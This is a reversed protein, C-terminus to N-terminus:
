GFLPLLDLLLLSQFFLIGTDSRCCGDIWQWYTGVLWWLVMMLHNGMLFTVSLLLFPINYLIHRTQFLLYENSSNYLFKDVMCCVCDCWVPFDGCLNFRGIVIVVFWFRSVFFFTHLMPPCIFFFSHYPLYCLFSLWSTQRDWYCFLWDFWFPILWLSWYHICDGM